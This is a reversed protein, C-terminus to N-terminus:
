IKELTVEPYHLPIAKEALSSVDRRKKEVQPAVYVYGVATMKRRFFCSREVLVGKQEVLKLELLRGAVIRSVQCYTSKRYSM